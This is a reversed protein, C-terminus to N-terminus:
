EIRSTNRMLGINHLRARLGDVWEAHSHVPELMEILRKIDIHIENLKESLNKESEAFMKELEYKDVSFRKNEELKESTM